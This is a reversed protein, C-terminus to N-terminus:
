TRKTETRGCTSGATCRSWRSSQRTSCACGSPRASGIFTSHRRRARLDSPSRSPGRRGRGVSCARLHGVGARALPRPDGRHGRPEARVRRVRLTRAAGPAVECRSASSAERGRDGHAPPLSLPLHRPTGARLGPARAPGRRPSRASRECRGHRGGGPCGGADRPVHRCRHRLDGGSRNAGSDTGDRRRARGRARGLRGRPRRLLGRGRHRLPEVPRLLQRDRRLSDRRHSELLRFAM